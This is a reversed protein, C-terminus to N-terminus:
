VLLPCIMLVNFEARQNKLFHMIVKFSCGLWIVLGLQRQVSEMGVRGRPGQQRKYRQVKRRQKAKCGGGGKKFLKAERQCRANCQLVCIIEEELKTVRRLARSYQRSTSFSLREAMLVTRTSLGRRAILRIGLTNIIYINLLVNVHCKKQFPMLIKTISSNSVRGISPLTRRSQKKTNKMKPMTPTWSQAPTPWKKNKVSFWWRKCTKESLAAIDILCVLAM